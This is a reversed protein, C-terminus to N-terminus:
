PGDKNRAVMVKKGNGEKIWANELRNILRRWLFIDRKLNWTGEDLGDAVTPLTISASTNGWDGLRNDVEQNVLKEALTLDGDSLAFSAIKRRVESSEVVDGWEKKWEHLMRLGIKGRRRRRRLWELALSLTRSTPHLQPHLRLLPLIEQLGPLQIPPKKSVTAPPLSLHQHVLERATNHQLSDPNLPLLRIYHATLAVALHYQHTYRLYRILSNLLAPEIDDTSTSNLAQLVLTIHFSSASANQRLHRSPTQLVEAIFDPPVANYNFQSSLRLAAERNGRIALHRVRLRKSYRDTFGRREMAREVLEFADPRKFSCALELLFNFSDCSQLSPYRNHFDMM